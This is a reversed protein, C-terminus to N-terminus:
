NIAIISGRSLCIDPNENRPFRASIKNGCISCMFVQDATRKNTKSLKAVKISIGSKLLLEECCPCSINKM